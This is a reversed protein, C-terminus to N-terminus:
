SYGDPVPGVVRMGHRSAMAALADPDLVEGSDAAGGLEDFYGVMADPLYINLKRSPVAGVRFGHVMGRPIYIFSGEPCVFERDEMFIIYEGALVYFAEASDEHTHLPPGFGAPEDAELLSFAGGTEAGDAKVTMQFAGMPIVRGEGPLHVIASEAHEGMITGEDPEDPNLFGRRHALLRRGGQGCLPRGLDTM